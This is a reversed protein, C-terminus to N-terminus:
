KFFFWNKGKNAFNPSIEVPFSCMYKWQKLIVVVTDSVLVVYYHAVNDYGM